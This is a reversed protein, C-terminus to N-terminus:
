GTRWRDDPALGGPASLRQRAEADGLLRARWWDTTVRAILAHHRQEMRTAAAKRTRPLVGAARGAFTMHDAQHLWLMAKAGAPLAEFAEARRDATSGKGVVAGDLSGTLCLVPRTIGAFARESDPGGPATPSFAAFAAPRPDSLDWGYEQGAVALTTYAGFSHGSMGVADPRLDRWDPARAARRRAVEDLVFRVDYARDVLQNLSAAPDLGRALAERVAPADSGRHQLHLVALGAASWAEGWASGGERTGGLGHSFLVLPWPGPTAPWRIRVPVRRHRPTDFWDEDAVRPQAHTALPALALGALLNRRSLQM